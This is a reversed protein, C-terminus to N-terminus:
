FSGTWLLGGGQQSAVPVLRSAKSDPSKKAPILLYIAAAAILAGGGVLVGIGANGMDSASQASSRIGPCGPDEGAVATRGCIPNGNLKPARSQLDSGQGAATGVLAGGVILGVLGVGGLVFAPVKSRPTVAPTTGTGAGTGSGITGGYGPARELTVEANIEEGPKADFVKEQSLYGERRIRFGVKGPDIFIPDVLPTTYSRGTDMQVLEVGDTNLKITIAAVKARADNMESQIKARKPDSPPSLRFAITLHEAADRYQRLELETLGLNFVVKQSRLDLAWAAKYSAQAQAYKAERFYANGEKFLSQAKESMAADVETAIEHPTPGAATPAASAKSSATPAASAKSSTTPAASAKSSATPAAKPPAGQAFSAHIPAALLLTTLLIPRVTRM